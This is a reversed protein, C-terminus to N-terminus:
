EVIWQILKQALIYDREDGDNYVVHHKGTEENYGSVHGAYWKHSAWQIQLRRGIAVTPTQMWDDLAFTNCLYETIQEMESPPLLLLLNDDCTSPQTYQHYVLITAQMWYCDSDEQDTSERQQQQHHHRSGQLLDLARDHSVSLVSEDDVWWWQGHQHNNRILMTAHRCSAAEEEDDDNDDDTDMPTGHIVAATLTYTLTTDETSYESLPDCSRTPDVYFQLPVSISQLPPNAADTTSCKMSSPLHLLWVWPYEDIYLQKYTTMTAPNCEVNCEMSDDDDDNSYAHWPYDLIVQPSLAARLREYVSHSPDSLTLPCPMRTSPLIRRKGDYQPEQQRPRTSQSKDDDNVLVLPEQEQQILSQYIEYHMQHLPAYLDLLQELFDCRTRLAHWLKVWTVVIDGQDHISIHLEHSLSKYLLVPDVPMTDKDDRDLDHLVRGLQIM